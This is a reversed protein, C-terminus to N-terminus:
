PSPWKTIQDEFDDRHSALEPAAIVERLKVTFRDDLARWEAFRSDTAPDTGVVRALQHAIPVMIRYGRYYSFFDTGFSDASKKDLNSEALFRRLSGSDPDQTVDWLPGELAVRIEDEAQGTDRVTYAEILIGLTRNPEPRAKLDAAAAQIIERLKAAAPIASAHLLQIFADRVKRAAQREAEEAATRTKAQPLRWVPGRLRWGSTYAWGCLCAVAGFGLSWTLALRHEVLIASLGFALVVAAWGLHFAAEREKRTEAM